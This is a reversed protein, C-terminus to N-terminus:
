CSVSPNLKRIRKILNYRYASNAILVPLEWILAVIRCQFDTEDIWMRHM